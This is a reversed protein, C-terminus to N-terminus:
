CLSYYKPLKKNLEVLKLTNSVKEKRKGLKNVNTRMSCKKLLKSNNFTMAIVITQVRVQCQKTKRECCCIEPVYSVFKSIAECAYCILTTLQLKFVHM